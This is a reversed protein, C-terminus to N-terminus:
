LTKLVPEMDGCANLTDHGLGNVYRVLRFFLIAWRGHVLAKDFNWLFSLGHGQLYFCLILM